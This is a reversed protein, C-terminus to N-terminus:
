CESIELVEHREILDPEKLVLAQFDIVAILDEKRSPPAAAASRKGRKSMEGNEKEM